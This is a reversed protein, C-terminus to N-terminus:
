DVHCIVLRWQTQPLFHKDARLRQQVPSFSSSESLHSVSTGCTNEVVQIFRNQRESLRAVMVLISQGGRQLDPSETLPAPETTVDITM